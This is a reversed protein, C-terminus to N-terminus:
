LQSTAMMLSLINLNITISNSLLNHIDHGPILTHCQRCSLYIPGFISSDKSLVLDGSVVPSERHEIHTNLTEIYWSEINALVLYVELLYIHYIIIFSTIIFKNLKNLVGRSQHRNISCFSSQYPANWGSHAKYPRKQIHTQGHFLKNM